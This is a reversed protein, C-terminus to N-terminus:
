REIGKTNWNQMTDRWKFWELFLAFLHSPTQPQNSCYGFRHLTEGFQM